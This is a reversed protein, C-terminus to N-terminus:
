ENGGDRQEQPLGPDTEVQLSPRPAGEGALEESRRAANRAEEDRGLITLVRALGAPVGPDLPAETARRRLEEAALRAFRAAREPEADRLLEALLLAVEWRLPDLGVARRLAAVAKERDGRALAARGRWEFVRVRRVRETRGHRSDRERTLSHALSRAAGDLDGRRALLYAQVDWPSNRYGDWPGNRDLAPAGLREVERLAAGDIGRAALYAAAVAITASEGESLARLHGDALKTDGRAREALAGLSHAVRLEVESPSHFLEEKAPPQGPEPLAGEDPWRAPDLLPALVLLARESSGASCLYWAADLREEPSPRAALLPEMERAAGASDGAVHRIWAKSSIRRAVELERAFPGVIQEMEALARNWERESDELFKRTEEDLDAWAEENTRDVLRLAEEVAGPVRVLYAIRREIEERLSIPLDM